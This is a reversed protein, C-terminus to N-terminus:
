AEEGQILDEERTIGRRILESYGGRTRKRKPRKAFPEAWSEVAEQVFLQEEESLVLGERKLVEIYDFLKATPAFWEGRINSERFLDHLYEELREDGPVTALLIADHPSNTQLMALRVKMNGSVGIKVARLASGEQVFYVVCSDGADIM